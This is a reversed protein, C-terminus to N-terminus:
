MQATGTHPATPGPTIRTGAHGELIARADSLQGIGAFKGSSRVFACAAAVKPGMSGPALDLAELAQPTTQHIATEDPGGFDRFVAAVDTLLLLADAGLDSALLASTRDKDIVAEVGEM